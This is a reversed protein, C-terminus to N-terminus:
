VYKTEQKNHPTPEEESRLLNVEFCSVQSIAAAAQTINSQSSNSLNSDTRQLSPSDSKPTKSKDQSDLHSFHHM